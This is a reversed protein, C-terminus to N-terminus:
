ADGAKMDTRKPFSIVPQGASDIQMAYDREIISLEALRFFEPNIVARLVEKYFVFVHRADDQYVETSGDETTQRLELRGFIPHQLVKHPVSANSTLDGQGTETM